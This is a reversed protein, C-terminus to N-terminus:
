AYMEERVDCPRVRVRKTMKVCRGKWRDRDKTARDARQKESLWKDYITDIPNEM